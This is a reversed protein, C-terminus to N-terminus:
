QLGNQTAMEGSRDIVSLRVSMGIIPHRVSTMRSRNGFLLSVSDSSVFGAAIRRAGTIVGTKSNRFISNMKWGKEIM